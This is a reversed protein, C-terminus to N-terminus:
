SPLPSIHGSLLRSKPLLLALDPPSPHLFAPFHPLLPQTPTSPPRSKCIRPDASPQHNPPPCFTTFLPLSRLPNPKNQDLNPTTQLALRSELARRHTSPRCNPPVLPPPPSPRSTPLPFAFNPRLSPPIQPPPPCPCSPPAFSPSLCPLSSTSAPNSHFSPTIQLNPSGRLTPPKSPPLVYHFFPSITSSEAQKPRFKATSTSRTAIGVTQPTNAPPLQASRAAVAVAAAAAPLQPMKHSRAVPRSFLCSPFCCVTVARFPEVARCFISERILFRVILTIQGTNLCTSGLRLQEFHGFTVERFHCAM